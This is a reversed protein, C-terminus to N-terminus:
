SIGGHHLIKRQFTIILNGTTVFGLPEDGYECFGAEPGRNLAWEIWDVGGGKCEKRIECLIQQNM